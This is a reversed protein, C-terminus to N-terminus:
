DEKKQISRYISRPQTGDPAMTALQLVTYHFPDLCNTVKNIQLRYDLHQMVADYELESPKPVMKKSPYLADYNKLFKNVALRQALVDPPQKDNIRHNPTKPQMTSTITTSDVASM